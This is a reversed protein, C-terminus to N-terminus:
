QASGSYRPSYRRYEGGVEEVERVAAERGLSNEEMRGM